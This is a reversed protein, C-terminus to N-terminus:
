RNAIGVQDVSGVDRVFFIESELKPNRDVAQFQPLVVAAPRKTPSTLM